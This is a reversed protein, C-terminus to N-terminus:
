CIFFEAQRLSLIYKKVDLFLSEKSQDDKLRILYAKNFSESSSHNINNVTRQIIDPSTISINSKKKEDAEKIQYNKNISDYLIKMEVKLCTNEKTLVSILQKLKSDDKSDAIYEHSLLSQFALAHNSVNQNQSNINVYNIPSNNTTNANSMGYNSNPYQINQINSNDLISSKLEKLSSDFAEKSKNFNKIIELFQLDDKKVGGEVEIMSSNSQKDRKNAINDLSKADSKNANKINKYQEVIKSANHTKEIIYEIKNAFLKM